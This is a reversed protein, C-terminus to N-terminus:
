WIPYSFGLWSVNITRGPWSSGIFLRASHIWELTLPLVDQWTPKRLLQENFWSCSAHQFYNSPGQQFYYVQTANSLANPHYSLFVKSFKAWEWWCEKVKQWLESLYKRKNQRFTLYKSWIRSETSNPIFIAFGSQNIKSVRGQISIGFSIQRLYCKRAVQLLVLFEM